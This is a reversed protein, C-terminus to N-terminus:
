QKNNDFVITSSGDFHLIEEKQIILVPPKDTVKPLADVWSKRKKKEEKSKEDEGVFIKLLEYARKYVHCNKSHFILMGTTIKQVNDSLRENIENVLSQNFLQIAAINSPLGAYADWSRFYCTLHMQGDIIEPDIMTLCPPNFGKEMHEPRRLVMTNQRDNFEEVFREVCKTIQDYPQRLLTGYTYDATNKEEKSDTEDQAFWLDHMFYWNVYKMDNPAKDHILPLNEPHKIVLTVNIKKTETEESGFGVRFPIGVNNIAYLIKGYADSNDFADIKIHEM